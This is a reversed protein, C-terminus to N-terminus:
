FNLVFLRKYKVVSTGNRANKMRDTSSPKIPVMKGEALPTAKPREQLTPRKVVCEVLEEKNFIYKNGRRKQPM